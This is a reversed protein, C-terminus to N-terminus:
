GDGPPEAIPDFASVRTPEFHRVNRTLLTLGKTRATAAVILDELEVVSPRVDDALRATALAVETDFPVIRNGYDAVLGDRFKVLQRARKHGEKRVLRLIGAEIEMLTITCVFCLRDNRRAWSVFPEAEPRPRPDFLSVINTDLLYMGTM